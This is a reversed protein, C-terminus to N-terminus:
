EGSEYPNYVSDSWRQREFNFHRIAVLLPILSLALLTVILHWPRAIGQRVTLTFTVPQSDQKDWRVDLGLTYTGAEPASLYVTSSRSGESWSEGEEVGSYYELTLSFGQADDTQQNILDGAIDVWANNLPASLTIEVNQRPKLAFPESFRVLSEEGIKVPDLQYTQRVVNQRSGFFLLVFGLILTLFAFQLWYEYVKKHPFPQNPAVKWPQPLKPLAFAKAVDPAPLYNGLSWNVEGTTGEESTSIERSLMWPPAIYDSTQVTEGVEVRWYFEGLVQEVRAPTDQYLKFKKKEYRAANDSPLSVRGPPIPRVFNWHDDSRVLWRFGTAPAYLLYEEWFYRIGDFEVSRQMFGIVTLPAHGPLHGVTGLPIIPATKQVLVRLFKLNGHNIDLLSGCSPCTTRETRDPARLTLAGGCNPCALQRAEVVRTAPTPVDLPFGLTALNIEQGIYVQPPNDSYDLTAFEGDSGSLDAYPHEVGPILRFPIEGEASVTHAIGKETVSLPRPTPLAFVLAGLVLSAFPEVAGAALEPQQFTLYYRGQAEALWGWRDNPFAAYWENWVGGAEHSFQVRGTLEFSEGQYRGRLGVSLPSDTTVLYAVKGLDEPDRDGRAVVSRCFECVLVVSSGLKFTISSGCGPCSAQTLGM